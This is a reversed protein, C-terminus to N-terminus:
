IENQKVLIEIVINVKFKLLSSLLFMLSSENIIM